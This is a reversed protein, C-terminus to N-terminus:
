DAAFARAFEREPDVYPKGSIDVNVQAITGGTVAFPAGYAPVSQSESDVVVAGRGPPHELGAM